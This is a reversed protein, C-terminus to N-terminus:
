AALGADDGAGIDAETKFSGALEELKAQAVQDECHPASLLTVIRADFKRALSGLGLDVDPVQVHAVILTDGLECLLAGRERSEVKDNQVSANDVRFQFDILHGAM